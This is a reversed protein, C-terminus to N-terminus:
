CEKAQLLLFLLVSCKKHSDVNKLKVRFEVHTCVETETRDKREYSVLYGNYLKAHTNPKLHANAKEADTKGGTPPSKNKVTKKMEVVKTQTGTDDAKTVKSTLSKTNKASRRTKTM